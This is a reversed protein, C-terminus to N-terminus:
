SILLFKSKLNLSIKSSLFKNLTTKPLEWSPSSSNTKLAQFFRFFEASM